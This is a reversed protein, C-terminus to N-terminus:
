RGETDDSNDIPNYLNLPSERTSSNNHFLRDKHRHSSEPKNNM